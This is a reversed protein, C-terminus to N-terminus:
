PAGAVERDGALADALDLRLRQPFELMRAPAPLKPAEQIVSKEAEGQPAGLPRTEFPSAAWSGAIWILVVAAPSLRGKKKDAL